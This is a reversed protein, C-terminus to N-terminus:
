TRNKTGKFLTHELFHAVGYNTEDEYKAGSRVFLTFCVSKLPLQEYLLTLGNKYKKEIVM